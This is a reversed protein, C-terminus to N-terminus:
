PVTMWALLLALASIRLWDYLVTMTTDSRTTDYHSRRRHNTKMVFLGAEV